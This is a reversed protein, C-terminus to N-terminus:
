EDAGNMLENSAFSVGCDLRLPEFMGGFSIDDFRLNGTRKNSVSTNFWTVAVFDM